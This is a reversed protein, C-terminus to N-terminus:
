TLKATESVVWDDIVLYRRRLEKKDKIEAALEAKRLRAAEEIAMRSDYFKRLGKMKEELISEEEEINKVNKIQQELRAKELEHQKEQIENKREKEQSGSKRQERLEPGADLRRAPNAKDEDVTLFVLTNDNCHHCRYSKAEHGCHECQNIFPFNTVDVNQRGCKGCVWTTNTAIPKRCQKCRIWVARKKLIHFYLYYAFALAAVDAFIYFPDFYLLVLLLPIFVIASLVFNSAPLLNFFQRANLREAEIRWPNLLERKLPWDM